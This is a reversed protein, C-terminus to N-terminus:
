RKWGGRAECRGYLFLPERSVQVAVQAREGAGQGKMLGAFWKVLGDRVEPRKRVADLLQTVVTQSCLNDSNSGQSRKRKKTRNFARGQAGPLLAKVAAEYDAQDATPHLLALTVRLEGANPDARLGLRRAVGEEVAARVIEKVELPM